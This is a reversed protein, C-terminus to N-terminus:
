IGREPLTPRQGHQQQQKCHTNALLDTQLWTGVLIGWSSIEEGMGRTHGGGPLFKRQM